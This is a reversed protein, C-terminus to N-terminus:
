FLLRLDPKGAQHIRNGRFKSEPMGIIETNNISLDGCNTDPQFAQGVKEEAQNRTITSYLAFEM